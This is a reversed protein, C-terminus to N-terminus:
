QQAAEELARAGIRRRQGHRNRMGARAPRVDALASEVALRLLRLEVPDPLDATDSGLQHERERGESTPCCIKCGPQSSTWRTICPPSPLAGWTRREAETWARAM